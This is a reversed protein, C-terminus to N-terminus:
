RAGKKNRVIVLIIIACEVVYCVAMVAFIAIYSPSLWSVEEVEAGGYTIVEELLPQAEEVEKGDAPDAPAASDVVPDEPAASDVAPDEPAASDVVPDEVEDSSSVASDSAAAAPDAAESVSSAFCTFATFSVFFVVMLCSIILASIMKNNKM